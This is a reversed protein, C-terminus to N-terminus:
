PLDSGNKQGAPARTQDGSTVAKDGFSPEATEPRSWSNSFSAGGPATYRM